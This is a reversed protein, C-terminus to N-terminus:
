DPDVPQKKPRGRPRLTYELGTRNAVKRTWATDGYPRGRQACERVAKLEDVSLPQNVREIWSPSRPIPWPSLLRPPPETQQAWRWLSGFRWDEARRVLKARLPNREVYRCVVLFHNDDAIPFSKFRSQYLHGEGSTHYHAHHRQTHTATVWRLLRGMLGDESPRLVLHWHNPMLTFAFLEVPYRELGEGLVRLFAEYDEDKRFIRQRANGRNLAHYVFGAEDVRKQRPM